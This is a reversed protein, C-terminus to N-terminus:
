RAIHRGGGKRHNMANPRAAMKTSSAATFGESLLTHKGTPHLRDVVNANLLQFDLFTYIFLCIVASLKLSILDLQHTILDLM